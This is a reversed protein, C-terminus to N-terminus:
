AAHLINKVFFTLDLNNKDFLSKIVLMICCCDLSKEFFILFDITVNLFLLVKADSKLL